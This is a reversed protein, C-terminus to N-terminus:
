LARVIRVIARAPFLATTPVPCNNATAARSLREPEGMLIWVTQDDVFVEIFLELWTKLKKSPVLNAGFAARKADVEAPALGNTIHTAADKCPIRMTRTILGEFGGLRRLRDVNAVREQCSSVVESLTQLGMAATTM